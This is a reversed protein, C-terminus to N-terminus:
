TEIEATHESQEDQTDHAPQQNQEVPANQDPQQGHENQQDQASQEIGGAQTSRSWLDAISSLEFHALVQMRVPVLGVMAMGNNLTQRVCEFLALKAINQNSSEAVEEKDFVAPLTDTVRFLYNLVVSSELSKASSKVM